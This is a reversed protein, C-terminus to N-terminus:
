VSIESDSRFFSVPCHTPCTTPCKSPKSWAANWTSAVNSSPMRTTVLYPFSWSSDLSPDPLDDAQMISEHPNRSAKDHLAQRIVPEQLAQRRLSESKVGTSAKGRLFHHEDHQHAVTSSLVLCLLLSLLALVQGFM